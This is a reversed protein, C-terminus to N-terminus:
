FSLYSAIVRNSVLHWDLIRGCNILDLALPCLSCVQMFPYSNAGATDGVLMSDCQSFNRPAYGIIKRRSNKGVHIM